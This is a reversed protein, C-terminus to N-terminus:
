PAGRVVPRGDRIWGPMDGELHLLDRHGARQLVKAAVEARRGSRCYLVVTGGPPPIEALREPLEDYPINVAGPVHGSAFEEPTRVDLVFPAGASELRAQLADAPLERYASSAADGCAALLVAFLLPFGRLLRVSVGPIAPISPFAPSSAARPM